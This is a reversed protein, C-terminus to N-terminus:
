KGSNNMARLASLGQATQESMKELLEKRAALQQRALDDHGLKKYIQSLRYHQQPSPDFRLCTEAPRRAKDWEDKWVYAQALACSAVSNEAPARKLM